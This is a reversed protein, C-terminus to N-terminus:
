RGLAPGGEEASGAGQLQVLRLLRPRSMERKDGFKMIDLGGSIEEWVTKKDDLHDRSQDVYALKVTDGLRISGKDPKEMGTLMKFLTTKGAM